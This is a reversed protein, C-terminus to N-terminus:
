TAPLTRSLRHTALPKLSVLVGVAAFLMLSVGLAHMKFGAVEAAAHFRAVAGLAALLISTVFLMDGM